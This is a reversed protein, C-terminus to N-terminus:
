RFLALVEAPTLYVYNPSVIGRRYGDFQRSTDNYRYFAWEYTELGNYYIIGLVPISQNSLLAYADELWQNKLAADYGNPGYATTGTQAIVVPKGPAMLHMRNIFPLFIDEPSEWKPYPNSPHYGFNYSSFAVVDVLDDGPYYAEFDPWGVSSVGNPSFVWQASNEPVGEAEFIQQVRQFAAKYYAPNSSGYPTWDGNMEQMPALFAMRAGNNAYIQFKQAWAHIDSDASGNAIESASQHFYIDVFPTYGSDWIETLVVDVYASQEIDHFMGALSLPKGAWNNLDVFEHQLAGSLDPEAYDNPYIGLLIVLPEPMTVLPLYVQHSVAKTTVSAGRAFDASCCVIMLVALLVVYYIKKQHTQM